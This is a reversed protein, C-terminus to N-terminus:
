NSHVRYFYINLVLHGSCMDKEFKANEFTRQFDLDVNINNMSTAPGSHSYYFCKFVHNNGILITQHNDLEM